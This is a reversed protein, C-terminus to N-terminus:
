YNLSNDHKAEWASITDFLWNQRKADERTMGAAPQDLLIYLEDLASLYDEHTKISTVM